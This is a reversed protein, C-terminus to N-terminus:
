GFRITVGKLLGSITEVDRVPAVSIVVLTTLDADFLIHDIDGRILLIRHSHENSFFARFGLSEAQRHNGTTNRGSFDKELEITTYTDSTSKGIGLSLGPFLALRIDFGDPRYEALNSKTFDRLTVNFRM